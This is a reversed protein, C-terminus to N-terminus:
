TRTNRRSSHGGDQLATRVQVEVSKRLIEVIGHVARYGHSPRSRRDDIEIDDFSDRLRKVINDQNRIDTVVIRCGAIDQMQSLRTKERRLKDIISTPTKISRVTPELRLQTRITAVVTESATRFSLRYRDHLRLDDESAKGKRLRDGLRNIQSKTLERSPEQRADFGKEAPM